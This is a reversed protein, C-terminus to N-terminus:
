LQEGYRAIVAHTIERLTLRLDEASYRYFGEAFKIEAALSLTRGKDLAVM